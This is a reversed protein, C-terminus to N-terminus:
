EDGGFPPVSAKLILDQLEDEDAKSVFDIVASAEATTLDDLSKKKVYMVIERIGAEDLGKRKADGIIKGKQKESIKNGSGSPPPTFSAREDSAQPTSRVKEFKEKGSASGGEEGEMWSEFDEESMQFIGSLGTAALTASVYARKIAMKLVTNWVDFLDSNELRYRHYEKGDKKSKFSKSVLSDKDIGKPLDNQFVWRYRYKSEYTACFGEGEGVIVGTNVHRLQVRITVDYHGTKFDKNEEKNAILKAYGYLANLKDAGPQFLTRNDTGPIVGYDLGEQMVEKVLGQVADIKFKLEALNRQLENASGSMDILASSSGGQGQIVVANEM